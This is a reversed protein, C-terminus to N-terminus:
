ESVAEAEGTLTRHIALVRRVADTTARVTLTAGTVGRISRKLDLEEDLEEGQFQEYWIDKPIYDEPERFALIEVRLVKGEADLAVMVTEPLTRVRHSDFYASGGVSDGCRAVYPYVLRTEIAVEAEARATALQEESLFVTTREVECGPYALALAEDVTLFVKSEAPGPVFLAVLAYAALATAM